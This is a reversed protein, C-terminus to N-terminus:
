VARSGGGGGTGAAGGRAREGRDAQVRGPAGAGRIQCGKKGRSVILLIFTYDLVLWWGILLVVVAFYMPHRVHRQPGQLVLPEARASRDETSKKCVSKRITVYTSVLVDGPKRYKSLWGMLGLGLGFLAVGGSRVAWPMQLRHPIRLANELLFGIAGFAACLAAVILPVVFM